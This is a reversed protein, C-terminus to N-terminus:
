LSGFFFFSHPLTSLFGGNGRRRTRRRRVENPKRTVTVLSFVEQEGLHELDEVEMRPEAEEEEEEEVPKEGEPLGEEDAAAAADEEIIDKVIDRRRRATTAATAVSLGVLDSHLKDGDDLFRNDIRVNNPFNISQSGGGGGGSNSSSNFVAAARSSSKIEGLEFNM